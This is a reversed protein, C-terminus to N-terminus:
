EVGKDILPVFRVQPELRRETLLGHDYRQQVLTNKPFLIIGTGERLQHAFIMPDFDGNPQASLLICDYPACRPEGHFGNGLILQPREQDHGFQRRM